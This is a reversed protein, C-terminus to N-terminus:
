SPGHAQQLTERVADYRPDLAILQTSVIGGAPLQLLARLHEAAADLAGVRIEIEALTGLYAPGNMADRGVPFLALARRGSALAEDKRGLGAQALGLLSLLSPDDPKERLAAAILDLAAAYAHQAAAADGKFELAQARLLDTPMQAPVYPSEIWAPAAAIAALAADADRGLWGVVFRIASVFGAPDFDAPITALAQAARAPEGAVVLALGKYIVPGYATPDAALSRDYAKAADEYRRLMTFSDGLLMPWRPNRPDLAAVREYGAIAQQVDGRRRQVSAIAAGIDGDGPLARRAREFDALAKAYDLDRYYHVYGRALHAQPLDPALALAKAASEEAAAMVQQTDDVHFWYSHSDLYSLRAWALAFGPDRAIASRYLRRAERVADTMDKAGIRGVQEALYEAKLFDDYAQANRTPVYAVHAVEAQLLQARLAAAVREAIESEVDFLDGLARTYSEAWLHSGDRGDILSVNVMIREGERQVSGELLAAVGLQAALARADAPHSQHHRTSARSMVQIDGIAALKTLITSQVGSAFYAGDERGALDAFPLVALSHPPPVPAPQRLARYGAIGAALLLLLLAGLRIALGLQRPGAPEATPAAAREPEPQALVAEAAPASPPADLDARELTRVAGIFRYGHGRVTEIYLPVDGVDGLAKRLARVNWSLNNEEVVTDPWVRELLAERTRLRGPEDILALLLDFAKRTLALPAGDRYLRRETVDIRFPGFLYVREREADVMSVM